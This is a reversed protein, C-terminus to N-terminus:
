DLAEQCFSSAALGRRGFVRRPWAGGSSFTLDALRRRVFVRNLCAGKSSIESPAVAEFFIQVVEIVSAVSVNVVQKLKWLLEAKHYGKDAVVEMLRPANRPDDSDTTVGDSRSDEDSDTTVGDSRSDEDSDTTDDDAATKAQEINVRGIELSQEITATDGTDASYIEAAVVIGSDMDVVQESKYALRIRGDKLKAIRADEDTKSNWDANSTKKGKRRRDLRRSPNPTLRQIVISIRRIILSSPAEPGEQVLSPSTPIMVAAIMHDFRDHDECIMAVPPPSSLVAPSM